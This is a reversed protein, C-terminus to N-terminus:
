NPTVQYLFLHIRHGPAANPDPRGTVVDAGNVVSQAAGRVIQALATTVTAIALANSM